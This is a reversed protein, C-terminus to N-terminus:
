NCYISVHRKATIAYLGHLVTALFGCTLNEKEPKKNKNFTFVFIV